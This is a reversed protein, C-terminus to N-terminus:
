PKRPRKSSAVLGKQYYAIFSKWIDTMLKAMTPDIQQTDFESLVRLILTEAEETTVPPIYNKSLIRPALYLLYNKVTNWNDKPRNDGGEECWAPYWQTTRKMDYDTVKKALEKEQKINKADKISKEYVEMSRQNDAEIKLVITELKTAQDYTPPPAIVAVPISASPTPAVSGTLTYFDRKQYEMWKTYEAQQTEKQDRLGVIYKQIDHLTSEAKKFEHQHEEIHKRLLIGIRNLDLKHEEISKRAIDLKENHWTQPWQIESQWATQLTGFAVILANYSQQAKTAFDVMGTTAQDMANKYEDSMKLTGIFYFSLNKELKKLFV